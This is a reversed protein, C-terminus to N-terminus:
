DRLKASQRVPTLVTERLLSAVATSRRKVILVPCHAQEAVQQAVNGMLLNRLLPEKTAGIVIMDCDVAAALIGPLPTDATEMRKELHDYSIGDLTRRFANEAQAQARLSDSGPRAVHLLIIKTLSVVSHFETDSVSFV